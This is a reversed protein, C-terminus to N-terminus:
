NFKIYLLREWVELYTGSCTTGLKTENPLPKNFPPPPFLSSKDALIRRKHASTEKM